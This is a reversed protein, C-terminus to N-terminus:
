SQLSDNQTCHQKLGLRLNSQGTKVDWLNSSYSMGPLEKPIAAGVGNQPPKM